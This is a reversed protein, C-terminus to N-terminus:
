LRRVEHAEQLQRLMREAERRRAGAGPPTADLARHSAAQLRYLVAHAERLQHSLADNAAHM